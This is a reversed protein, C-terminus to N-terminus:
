QYLSKAQQQLYLKKLNTDNDNTKLSSVNKSGLNGKPASPNSSQNNANGHNKASTSNLIQNM